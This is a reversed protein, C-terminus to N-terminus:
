IKSILNSPPVNQDKERKFQIENTKKVTNNIIENKTIKVETKENNRKTTKTKSFSVKKTM